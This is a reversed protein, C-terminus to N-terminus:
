DCWEPRIRWDTTPLMSEKTAVLTNRPDNSLVQCRFLQTWEPLSEKPKLLFTVRILFEKCIEAIEPCRKRVLAEIDRDILTFEGHAIRSRIESLSYGDQKNFIAKYHAHDAGFVTETVRRVKETIGVICDFYAERVFKEPDAEYLEKHKQLICETRRERRETKSEKPFDLGLDADSDAVAIAVSELAIYYCLYSTFVNRSLKGRNYWDIAADLIIADETKPFERLMKDLVSLDDKSPTACSGPSMTIRYKVRWEARQNYAFAMRNVGVGIRAISTRIYEPETSDLELWGDYIRINPHTNPIDDYTPCKFFHLNKGFTFNELPMEISTRVVFEIGRHGTCMMYFISGSVDPDDSMGIAEQELPRSEGPYILPKWEGLKNYRGPLGVEYLRKEGIRWEQKLDPIFGVMFSLPVELSINICETSDAGRVFRASTGNSFHMKFGCLGYEDNVLLEFVEFDDLKHLKPFERFKQLESFYKELLILLLIRCSKFADKLSEMDPITDRIPFQDLIQEPFAKMVLESLEEMDSEIAIKATEIAIQKISPKVINPFKGSFLHQFPSFNYPREMACNILNIMLNFQDENDIMLKYTAPLEEEKVDEGIQKLSDHLHLLPDKEYGKIGTVRLLTYIYSRGGKKEADSFLEGLIKSAKTADIIKGM